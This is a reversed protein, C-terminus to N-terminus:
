QAPGYAWVERPRGKGKPKDPRRHVWGAKELDKLISDLQGAKVNRGLVEYLETKSVGKSGADKVENLVRDARGDGTSNRFVISCSQECYSWVALGALLHPVRVVDSRDLVAYLSAIRRVYAEARSTVIGVLFPKGESLEEYVDIWLERASYGYGEEIEGSFEIARHEEGFGIALRLDEVLDKGFVERKGGFPLSKSRRVLAFLFRNAVGGGLKTETLHGLLESRTIHGSITVHTESAKHPDGKTLNSLTKDDFANRLVMSLTNGERQMVTLLSGFEPEEVLLRKDV